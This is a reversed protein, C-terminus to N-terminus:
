NVKISKVIVRSLRSIRPKRRGIKFPGLYLWNFLPSSCYCQRSRWCIQVCIWSEDRLKKRRQLAHHDCMMCHDDSVTIFIMWGRWPQVECSHMFDAPQFHSNRWM